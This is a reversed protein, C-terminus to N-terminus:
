LFELDDAAEEAKSKKLDESLSLIKEFVSTHVVDCDFSFCLSLEELNISWLDDVMAVGQMSSNKKFDKTQFFFNDFGRTAIPLSMAAHIGKKAFDNKINVGILNLLECFFSDVQEREFITNKKFKRQMFGQAKVEDYHVKLILQMDDSALLVLAMWHAYIPIKKKEKEKEEAESASMYRKFYSLSHLRVVHSLATFYIRELELHIPDKELVLHKRFFRNKILFTDSYFLNKLDFFM